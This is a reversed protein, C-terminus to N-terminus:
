PQRRAGSEGPAAPEEFASTRGVPALESDAEDAGAHRPTAHHQEYDQVM